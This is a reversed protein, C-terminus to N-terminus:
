WSALQSEIFQKIRDQTKKVHCDYRYSQHAPSFNCDDVVFTVSSPYHKKLFLLDEPRNYEDNPYAFVLADMQSASLMDKIQKPRAVERWWPAFSIESRKGAFAPAFAIAGNFRENVNKMMMLSTWGGNSHGALFLNKPHIGRDLFSNIAHSIEQKRLYVQKGAASPVPSETSTSCLSYILTRYDRVGRLSAPPKNYFMGCREQEQPRSTGHNYIIIIQEKTPVTFAVKSIDKKITAPTNSGFSSCSSIFLSLIILTFIKIHKQSTLVYKIHILM